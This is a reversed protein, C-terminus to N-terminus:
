PTHMASFSAHHAARRPPAVLVIQHHDARAGAPQHAGVEGGGEPRPHRQHFGVPDSAVTRPRPADGAFRQELGAAHRVLHSGGAPVADVHARRLRVHLVHPTVHAVGDFLNVAQLRGLHKGSAPDVHDFAACLEGLWMHHLDATMRDHRTPKEDTGSRPRGRWRNGSQGVHRKEGVLGDEVVVPQRLMQHHDARAGDAQLQAEGVAPEARVDRHDAHLDQRPLFLLDAGRHLTDHGLGTHSTHLARHVGHAAVPAPVADCRRRSLEARIRKENGRAARWPDRTEPQLPHPHLGRFLPYADIPKQTGRLGVNVARAVDRASKLEGMVGAPLRELGHPVRQEGAAARSMSVEHRAHREEVGFHCVHTERFFTRAGPVGVHRHVAPGHIAHVPRRGVALRRSEQLEHRSRASPEETGGGDGRPCPFYDALKGQCQLPAHRDRVDGPRDM